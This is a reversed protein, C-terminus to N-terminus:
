AGKSEPAKLENIEAKLAELQEMMRTHLWTDMLVQGEPLLAENLVVFIERRGQTRGKEWADYAVRRSIPRAEHDELGSTLRNTGKVRCLDGARAGCYECTVVKYAPGHFPNEPNNRPNLNM